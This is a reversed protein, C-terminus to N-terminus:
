DEVTKKTAKNSRKEQKRSKKLPTTIRSIAADVDGIVRVGLLEGIQLSKKALEILSESTSTSSESQAQLLAKKYSLRPSQVEQECQNKQVKNAEGGDRSCLPSSNNVVRNGVIWDDNSLSKSKSQKKQRQKFRGKEGEFGPPPQSEERQLTEDYGKSNVRASLHEEM